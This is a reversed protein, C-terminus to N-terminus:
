SSSSLMKKFSEDRGAYHGEHGAESPRRKVDGAGLAAVREKCVLVEGHRLLAPRRTARTAGAVEAFLYQADCGTGAGMSVMFLTTRRSIESAVESPVVEIEAGFAGASEYAKVANFVQM